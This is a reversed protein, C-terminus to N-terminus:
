RSGNPGMHIDQDYVEGNVLSIEIESNRMDVVASFPNGRSSASRSAHLKYTGAVANRLVYDGNADTRAQRSGWPNNDTPSMWITAGASPTNDPGFVRGRVIAGETLELKGMAHTKGDGIVVNNMTMASYGKMVIQIQYTDPTMLELEFAGNADTRVSIKTSASDNLGALLNFFETDVYNNDQTKVEAGAVPEGTRSDIVIGKISGGRTLHVVIDGTEQGEAVVFSQSFSSAFGRSSGEVVYDGQRIGKLEFSGNSRDHFKRSAVVNGWSPNRPHLARVKIVFDQVPKGSEAIVVQGSVRGQEALVIEVNTRGTEIRQLPQSSFGKATARVTYFGEGIDEILFEGSTKSTTIGRSGITGTQNIAEVQVGNIGEGNPGVVHGAITMGPELEFNHNDPISPDDITTAGPLTRVAASVGPDDSGQQGWSMGFNNHVQAAYGRASVILTKQGGGANRFGFFGLADTQAEKRAASRRTSPLFAALPNDLRLLANEIPSGTAADTVYGQVSLGYELTIKEKVTGDEPVRIGNAEYRDFTDHTVVITWNGPRLARFRFSGTTDTVIKDKPTPPDQDNVLRVAESVESSQVDLLHVRAEAVPRSKRDLVIGEIAGSYAGRASPDTQVESRDIGSQLAAAPGVIEPPAALQTTERSDKAPRVVLDKSVVTGHRQRDGSVSVIAFVLAAVAGLILILVTLPRM